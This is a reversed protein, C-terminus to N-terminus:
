NLNAGKTNLYKSEPNINLPAPQFELSPFTPPPQLAPGPIQEGPMIGLDRADFSMTGRGRGRGGGRGGRGAM